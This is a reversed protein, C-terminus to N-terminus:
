RDSEAVCRAGTFGMLVELDERLLSTVTVVSAGAERAATEGWPHACSRNWHM